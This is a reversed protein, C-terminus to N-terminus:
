TEPSRQAQTIGAHRAADPIGEVRDNASLEAGPARNISAWPSECNWWCSARMVGLAGRVSISAMVASVNTCATCDVCATEVLIQCPVFAVDHGIM